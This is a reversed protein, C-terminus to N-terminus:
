KDPVTGAAEPDPGHQGVIGVAPVLLLWSYRNPASNFTILM